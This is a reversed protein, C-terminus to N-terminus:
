RLYSFMYLQIAEKGNMRVIKPPRAYEICIQDADDVLYFGKVKMASVLRAKDKSPFIIYVKSKKDQILLEDIDKTLEDLRINFPPDCIVTDFKNFYKNYLLKPLGKYLDYKVFKLGGNERFRNDREFLIVNKSAKYACLAVSPTVLCATYGGCLKSLNLTTESTFFYQMYESNQDLDVYAETHDESLEVYPFILNNRHAFLRDINNDRMLNIINKQKFEVNVYNNNKIYKLWILTNPHREDNVYLNYNDYDLYLSLEDLLKWSKLIWGPKTLIILVGEDKLKYSVEVLYKEFLEYEDGLELHFRNHSTNSLLSVFNHVGIFVVDFPDESYEINIVDRSSFIPETYHYGSLLQHFDEQKIINENGDSHFTNIVLRNPTYLYSIIWTIIDHNHTIVCVSDTDSICGFNVFALANHLGYIKSLLVETRNQEYMIEFASILDAIPAYKLSSAM